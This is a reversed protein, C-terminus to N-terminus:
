CVRLVEALQVQDFRDLPGIGHAELLALPDDDRPERVRASWDRQLRKLEEAVTAEDIRGQPALTAMRTVSANLDRFNASWVAEPSTALKLFRARAERNFTVRRGAHATHRELEYDLNPELDERRDALGPLEFTWVNIRSLLDHRFRGRAAAERLDRNTGALLQ